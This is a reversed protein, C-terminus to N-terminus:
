GNKTNSHNRNYNHIPETKYEEDSKKQALTTKTKNEQERIRVMGNVYWKKHTHKKKESKERMSFHIHVGGM